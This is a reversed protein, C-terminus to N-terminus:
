IDGSRRDEMNIQKFLRVMDQFEQEGDKRNQTVKKRNILTMPHSRRGMMQDRAVALATMMFRSDRRGDVLEIIASEAQDDPNKPETRLVRTFGGVRNAYRERLEGFLKPMLEHPTQPLAARSM